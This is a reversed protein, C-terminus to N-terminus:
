RGRAIELLDGELGAGSRPSETIRGLEQGDARDLVIFSPVAQVGYTQTSRPDRDDLIEATWASPLHELIRAMKPVERRCDSCWAGSVVVLHAEPLTQSVEALVDTRPKYGRYIGEGRLETRAYASVTEAAGAGEVRTTETM